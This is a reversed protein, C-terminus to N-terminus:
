GHGRGRNSTGAPWIAKAIRHVVADRDQLPECWTAWFNLLVAKGRFDSLKVPKGDLASLSFDPAIKGKAAAASAEPLGMRRRAFHVGAFLMIAVILGVVVLVFPNRKM